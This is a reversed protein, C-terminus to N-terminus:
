ASSVNYFVFCWHYCNIWQRNNWKTQAFVTGTVVPLKQTIRLPILQIEAEFPNEVDYLVGFRSVFPVLQGIIHNHRLPNLRIPIDPTNQGTPNPL